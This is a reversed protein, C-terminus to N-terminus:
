RQFLKQEIAKQINIENLECAYSEKLSEIYSMLAKKQAAGSIKEKIRSKVENFELPRVQELKIVHFGFRTLVPKSVGGAKLEASYYLGAARINIPFILKM